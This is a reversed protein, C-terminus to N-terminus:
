IRPPQVFETWRQGDYWRLAGAADPYWGPPPGSRQPPTVMRLYNPSAFYPHMPKPKNGARVLARFVIGFIVVPACIVALFALEGGKFGLSGLYILAGVGLAIWVWSPTGQLYPPIPDRMRPKGRWNTELPVPPQPTVPAPPRQHFPPQQPPGPQHLYNM